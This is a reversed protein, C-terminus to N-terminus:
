SRASRPVEVGSRGCVESKKISWVLIEKNEREINIKYVSKLYFVALVQVFYIVKVLITLM